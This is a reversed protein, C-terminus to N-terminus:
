VVGSSAERLTNCSLLVKDLPQEYQLWKSVTGLSIELTTKTNIVDAPIIWLHLPTLLTRNDLAICAFYDPITNYRINFTWRSSTKNGEKDLYRHLCASKADVKFGKGCIFDYGVNNFQMKQVNTFVMSLLREAVHVGLYQSCTKSETYPKYIGLTHLREIHRNSDCRKCYSMRETKNKYKIHFDNEPLIQKCKLCTKM